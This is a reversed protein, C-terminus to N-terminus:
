VELFIFVFSMISKFETTYTILTIVPGLIGFNHIIM